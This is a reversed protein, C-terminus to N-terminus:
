HLQYVKERMYAAWQLPTRSGDFTEAPVPKGFIVKFHANRARYMEDPLYLMAFNFKLKLFKCLNAVRYFRGSNEGVFRVPVM